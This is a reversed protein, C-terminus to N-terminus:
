QLQFQQLIKEWCAYVVDPIPDKTDIRLIPYPKAKMLEEYGRRVAELIEPTTTVTDFGRTRANLREIIISPEADLWLVIDPRRYIIDKKRFMSEQTTIFFFIDHGSAISGHVFTSADYRNCIVLQHKLLAKRIESTHEMRDNIFIQQLEIPSPMHAKGKLIERLTAGHKGGTPEETLFVDVGEGKAIKAVFEAITSKGCGKLGEFVVFKGRLKELRKVKDSM